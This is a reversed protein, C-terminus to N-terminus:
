WKVGTLFAADAPDNGGCKPRNATSARRYRCQAAQLHRNETLCGNLTMWCNPFAELLVQYIDDPDAGARCIRFAGAPASFIHPMCPASGSLAARYFVM